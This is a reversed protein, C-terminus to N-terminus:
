IYLKFMVATLLPVVKLVSRVIGDFGCDWWARGCVTHLLARKNM